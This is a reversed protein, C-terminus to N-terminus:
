KNRSKAVYYIAAEREGEGMTWILAEGGCSLQWYRMRWIVTRRWQFQLENAM